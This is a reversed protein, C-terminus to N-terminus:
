NVYAVSYQAKSDTALLILNGDHNYKKDLDIIANTPPDKLDLILSSNNFIRLRNIDDKLLKIQLTNKSRFYNFSFGAHYDPEKPYFDYLLSTGSIEDSKNNQETIIKEQVDIIIQAVGSDVDGKWWNIREDYFWVYEDTTKYANYLNYALWRAKANNDFGKAYAPTKGYLQDFFIAQAYSIRNFEPLLSKIIMRSGIDRLNVASTIFTEANQFGYSNENGDIIESTESKGELMGEIFFPYLAMGTEAIPQNVSQFYTLLLLWFSLIKIDPKYTQLAQMFQKGRKRVVNGVDEYSLNNYLSPKYLWPNLMPDKYYYEADFGIGKAKAMKVAMSVKKLNEIIKSWSADDLWHAGTYSAGRVLLFNDSFKKWQIQSLDEYQFKSDPYRTTDFANYIDFDFVFVMGDFPANEMTAINAKLFSVNPCDWGFEILKKDVTGQGFSFPHTLFILLILTLQDKFM